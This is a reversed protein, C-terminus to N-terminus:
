KKNDEGLLKSNRLGVIILTEVLGSLTWSNQNGIYRVLALIENDLSVCIKTRHTVKNRSKKIRSPKSKSKAM